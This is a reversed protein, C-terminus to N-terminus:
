RHDEQHGHSSSGATPAPVLAPNPHDIRALYTTRPRVGLEDLLAYRHPEGQLQSVRSSSDQLDGFVIAQTPCAQACAPVVDGDVLKRDAVKADIRARNIRQVCYTCKEMVGRTRVSVDPNRMAALEPADNVYDYFNFRRV